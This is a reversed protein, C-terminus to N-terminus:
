LSVILASLLDGRGVVRGGANCTENNRVDYYGKLRGTFDRGEIRSTGTQERWGLLRGSFDRFEIRAAMEVEMLM